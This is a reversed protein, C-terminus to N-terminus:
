ADESHQDESLMSYKQTSFRARFEGSTEARQNRLQQHAKHFGPQEEDSDLQLEM